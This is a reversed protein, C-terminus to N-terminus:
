GNAEKLQLVAVSSSIWIGQWFSNFLFLPFIHVLLDQLHALESLYWIDSWDYSLAGWDEM